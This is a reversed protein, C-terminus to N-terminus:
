SRPRWSSVIRRIEEPLLMPDFPKAIVGIAGSALYSAIEQTQAKATMFVVPISATEASARLARLVSPGDMEPLMVDLLILDPRERRALALADAGTGALLVRWQGVDALAVEGIARIDEEDDVLLISRLPREM